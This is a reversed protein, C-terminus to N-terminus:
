SDHFKPLLYNGIYLDLGIWGSAGDRYPTYDFPQNSLARCLFHQVLNM